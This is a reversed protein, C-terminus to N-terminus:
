DKNQLYDLYYKNLNLYENIIFRAGAKIMINSIDYKYANKFNWLLADYFINIWLYLTEIITKEFSYFRRYSKIVEDQLNFPTMSKPRFVVHMGDYYNWNTHLLRGENNIKEYIKTGPFPTLIMFQVTDVDFKIAFDVTEIINDLKDNDEGFMFMGHIKIGNEHIIKIANEIDNRTQNKHYSRLVEDNISEFGIYVRECGSKFMKALLEPEKAIDSRVQATWTINLKENILFDMLENIRKRDATLNDDYFFIDRTNFYELANKIEAIIRPVSQTRFKKGFIKTVTCFNCDFPCGRSTMVPFINMNKSNKLLSYNILPLEDLNEIKGGNVIKDQINGNVIDIIINEAEGTVIIDASNIFEDPLLSPHIGGIIIKTDPNLKKIEKALYKSRESNITLSSIAVIDANIEFPSIKRKLLNENLIEVDYGNNHLITALYLSGMLPLKMYNDFVNAENGLPEIFSIKVKQM